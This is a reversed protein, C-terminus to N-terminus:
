EKLMVCDASLEGAAFFWEPVIRNADIRTTVTVTVRDGSRADLLNLPQVEVRGQRVNWQQLMEDGRAIAGEATTGPAVATRATEYATAQLEQKLFIMGCAEISAFVILVIVPCCVAFEVTATGWRKGRRRRPWRAQPRNRFRRM